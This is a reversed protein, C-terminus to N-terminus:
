LLLEGSTTKSATLQNSNSTIHTAQKVTDSGVVVILFCVCFCLVFHLHKHNEILPILVSSFITKKNIQMFNVIVFYLM